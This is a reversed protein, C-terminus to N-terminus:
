RVVEPVVTITGQLLPIVEGTAVSTLEIGYSLRTRLNDPCMILTQAPSISLEIVGPEATFDVGDGQAIELVLTDATSTGSAGEATRVQMQITYGTLPYPQGDGSKARFLRTDTAGRQITFSHKGPSAM